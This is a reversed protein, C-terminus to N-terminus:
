KINRMIPSIRFLNDEDVENFLSWYNILDEFILKQSELISKIEDWRDDIELNNENLFDEYSALILSMVAIKKDTSLDNQLYFRLFDNIRKSNAMEIEWDQEAGTYPLLLEKSLQEITDKKLIM